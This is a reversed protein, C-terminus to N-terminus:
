VNLVDSRRSGAELEKQSFERMYLPGIVKEFGCPCWKKTYCLRRRSYSSGREGSLVERVYKPKASLFRCAPCWHKRFFRRVRYGIFLLVAVAATYMVFPLVLDNM